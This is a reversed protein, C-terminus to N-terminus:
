RSRDRNRASGAAEDRTRISSVFSHGPSRALLSAHSASRLEEPKTAPAPRRDWDVLTVLDRTGDTPKFSLANFDLIGVFCSVVVNSRVEHAIADVRAHMAVLEQRPTCSLLQVGGLYKNRAVLKRFRTEFSSTVDSSASAFSFSDLTHQLHARRELPVSDSVQECTSSNVIRIRTGVLM